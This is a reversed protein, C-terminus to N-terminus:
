FFLIHGSSEGINDSITETCRFPNEHYPTQFDTINKIQMVVIAKNLVSNMLHFLLVNKNVFNMRMADTERIKYLIFQQKQLDNALILLVFYLESPM